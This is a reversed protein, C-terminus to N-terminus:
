PLSVLHYFRKPLLAAGMDIAQLVAGTGTVNTYGALPQWMAATLTDKYEVRYNKGVISTYSVAVNTSIRQIATIRLLGDAVRSLAATADIKGYGWQPNPVAGTFSDARATAHLIQKTTEPDLQPNMQLM